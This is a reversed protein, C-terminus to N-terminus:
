PGTSDAGSDNGTFHILSFCHTSSFSKSTALHQLYIKNLDGIDTDRVIFNCGKLNKASQDNQQGERIVHNDERIHRPM